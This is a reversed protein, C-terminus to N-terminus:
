CVKLGQYVRQRYSHSEWYLPLQPTEARGQDVKKKAATQVSTVIRSIKLGTVNEFPIQPKGTVGEM